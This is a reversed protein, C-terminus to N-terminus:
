ERGYIVVEIWGCISDWLRTGKEWIWLGKRGYVAVWFGMDV